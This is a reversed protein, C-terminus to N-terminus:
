RAGGPRNTGCTGGKFPPPVQSRPPWPQAPGQPVQHSRQANGCTLPSPSPGVTITKPHSEHSLPHHPLSSSANETGSTSFRRDTM